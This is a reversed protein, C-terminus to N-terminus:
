KGFVADGVRRMWAMEEDTMPGRATEILNEKMQKLSSPATITVDVQPHSLVFRYCDGATPIKEGEPIKGPKLLSNWCTATFAIIGPPNV